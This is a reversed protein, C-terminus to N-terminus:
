DKKSCDCEGQCDCDFEFELNTGCNPCDIGEEELMEADIYITDNCNPCTVEYLDDEDNCGCDCEGSCCSCEDEEDDEYIIDELTSLDEDVADIQDGLDFQADEIADIEDSIDSLIELMEAIIKGENKETDLKMGEALGKVYSIRESITM